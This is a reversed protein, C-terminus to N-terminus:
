EGSDSHLHPALEYAQKRLRNVDHELLEAQKLLGQAKEEPTAEELYEVTPDQYPQQASEVMEKTPIPPQGRGENISNLVDRMKFEIEPSPTLVVEDVDVARMATNQYKEHFTKLMTPNAPNAMADALNEQEQTNGYEILKILEDRDVDSLSDIFVVFSQPPLSNPIMKYLIALREGTPVHKGIHKLKRGNQSFLTVM